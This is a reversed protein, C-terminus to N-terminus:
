PRSGYLALLGRLDRVKQAENTGVAWASASGPVATVDTLAFTITPWSPSTRIWRKGTWHVYAGLWIGDHGDFCFGEGSGYTLKLKAAPVDQKSWRRGNWYYLVDPRHAQAGWIAVLWLQGSPSAALEPFDGTGGPPSAMKHLGTSTGYYVDTGSLVYVHKGAGAIGDVGGPAPYSVFASGNWHWVTQYCVVPQGTCTDAGNLGWADTSSLVAVGGYVTGVPLRLTHWGAPGSILAEPQNAATAGLIWVDAAGIATVQNPVFGRGGPVTVGRWRSGNWRLTYLGISSSGVAWAVRPGNATVAILSARTTYVVQWRPTSSAMAPGAMAVALAVGLCTGLALLRRTLKM